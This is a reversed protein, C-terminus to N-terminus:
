VEHHEHSCRQRWEENKSDSLSFVSCHDAVTSSTSVHSKYELKIYNRSDHLAKKLEVIEDIKIGVVSFFLVRNFVLM